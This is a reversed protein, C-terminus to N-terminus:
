VFPFEHLITLILESRCEVASMILYCKTARACARTFLSRRNAWRLSISEVAHTQTRSFECEHDQERNTFLSSTSPLQQFNFKAVRKQQVFENIMQVVSLEVFHNARQNLNNRCTTKTVAVIYYHHSRTRQENSHTHTAIYINM